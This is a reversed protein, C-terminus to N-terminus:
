TRKKKRARAKALRESHRLLARLIARNEALDLRLGRVEALLEARDRPTIQAGGKGRASPM